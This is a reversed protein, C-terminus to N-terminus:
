LSFAGTRLSYSPQDAAGDQNGAKAKKSTTHKTSLATPAGFLHQRDPANLPIVPRQANETEM